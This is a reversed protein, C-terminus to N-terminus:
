ERCWGFVLLEVEGVCLGKGEGGTRELKCWGCRYAIGVELVAVVGARGM